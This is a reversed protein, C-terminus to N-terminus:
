NWWYLADVWASSCQDSVSELMWHKIANNQWVCLLLSWLSTFHFRHRHSNNSRAAHVTHDVHGKLVVNRLMTKCSVEALSTLKPPLDDITVELNNTEINGNPLNSGSTPTAQLSDTDTKPTDAPDSTPQTTSETGQSHSIWIRLYFSNRPRINMLCQPRSSPHAWFHCIEDLVRLLICQAAWCLNGGSQVEAGYSDNQHFARGQHVLNSKSGLVLIPWAVVRTCRWTRQTEDEVTHKLILSRTCSLYNGSSKM